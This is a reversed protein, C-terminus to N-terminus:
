TTSFCVGCSSIEWGCKKNMGGKRRWQLALM